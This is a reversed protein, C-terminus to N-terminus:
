EFALKSCRSTKLCPNLWSHKALHRLFLFVSISRLRAVYRQPPCFHLPLSLEIEALSLFSPSPNAIQKGGTKTASRVQGSKRWKTMNAEAGKDRRGGERPPDSNDPLCVRRRTGGLICSLFNPFPSRCSIFILDLQSCWVAIPSSPLFSSILFPAFLYPASQGGFTSAEELM